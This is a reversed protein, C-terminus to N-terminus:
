TPKKVGRLLRKLAENPPPPNEVAALLADRDVDALPKLTTLPPLPGEPELPVVKAKRLVLEHDNVVEMLFTSNAFGKPLTVRGKSDSERIETTLELM